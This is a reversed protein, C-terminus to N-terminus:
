IVIFNGIAMKRNGFLLINEKKSQIARAIRLNMTGLEVLFESDTSLSSTTYIVTKSDNKISNRIQQGLSSLIENGRKSGLIAGKAYMNYLSVSDGNYFYQAFQKDLSDIKMGAKQLDIPTSVPNQGYTISFSFVLSLFLLTSQRKLNYM